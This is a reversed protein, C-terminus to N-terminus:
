LSPGAQRIEPSTQDAFQQFNKAFLGALKQAQAKYDDPNAWTNGPNLVEKPVGTCQVPIRLGFYPETETAVDDLRGDLAANVMARTHAISMRQGVGPPGGSWGTNILWVRTDHRDLKSGLLEAYRM